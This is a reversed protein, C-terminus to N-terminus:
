NEDRTIDVEPLTTDSDVTISTATGQAEAEPENGAAPASSEFQDAFAGIATNSIVHTFFTLDEGWAPLSGALVSLVAALSGATVRIHKM